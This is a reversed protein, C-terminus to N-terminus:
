DCSCFANGKIGALDICKHPKCSAHTSGATKHKWTQLGCMCLHSRSLPMCPPPVARRLWVWLRGGCFRCFLTCFCNLNEYKIIIAISERFEVFVNSRIRFKSDSRGTQDFGYLVKCLNCLWKRRWSYVDWLRSDKLRCQFKHCGYSSIDGGQSTCTLLASQGNILDNKGSWDLSVWSCWQFSKQCMWSM